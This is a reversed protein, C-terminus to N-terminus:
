LQACWKETQSKRQAQRRVATPEDDPYFRM